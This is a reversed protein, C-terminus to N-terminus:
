DRCRGDGLSGTAGLRCIDPHREGALHPLAPAPATRPGVASDRVQGQCPCLRRPLLGAIFGRQVEGGLAEQLQEALGGVTHHVEVPCGLHQLHLLPADVVDGIDQLADLEDGLLGLVVDLPQIDGPHPSVGSGGPNPTPHLLSPM